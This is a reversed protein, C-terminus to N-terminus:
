TIIRAQQQRLRMMAFNKWLHDCACSVFCSPAVSWWGSAQTPPRERGLRDFQLVLRPSQGGVHFHFTSQVLAVRDVCRLLHILKLTARANINRWNRSLLRLYTCSDIYISSLARPLHFQLCCIHYRQTTNINTRIYGNPQKTWRCCVGAQLAGSEEIRTSYAICPVSSSTAHPCM